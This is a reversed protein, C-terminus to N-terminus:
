HTAVASPSSSASAGLGAAPAFHTLMALLRHIRERLERYILRPLSEPHNSGPRVPEPPPVAAVDAFVVDERERLDRRCEWGGVLKLRM